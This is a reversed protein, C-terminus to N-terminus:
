NYNDGGARPQQPVTVDPSVSWGSETKSHDTEFVLDVPNTNSMFVPPLEEDSRNQQKLFLWNLKIMWEPM